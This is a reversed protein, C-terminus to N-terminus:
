NLILWDASSSAAKSIYIKSNSTDVYIDGAKSPTSAPVGAGSSIIPKTDILDSVEDWHEATVNMNVLESVEHTQATTGGVGRDGAASITIYNGNADSGTASYYVIERLTENNPSVVLWGSSPTPLTTVYFNGAGTTSWRRAVTTKYFNQIVHLSM